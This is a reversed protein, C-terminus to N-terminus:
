DLGLQTTNLELLILTLSHVEFDPKNLLQPAQHILCDLAGLDQELAAIHMLTRGSSTVRDLSVGEESFIEM